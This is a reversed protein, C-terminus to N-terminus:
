ELVAGIKRHHALRSPEINVSQPLLQQSQPRVRVRDALNRLVAERRNSGAHYGGHRAADRVLCRAGFNSGVCSDPIEARAVRRSRAQRGSLQQSSSKAVGIQSLREPCEQVTTQAAAAQGRIPRARNAVSRDRM